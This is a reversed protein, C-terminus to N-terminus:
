RLERGSLGRKERHEQDTDFLCEDCYEDNLAFLREFINRKKGCRACVPM